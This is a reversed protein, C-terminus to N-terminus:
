LPIVTVLEVRRTGSRREEPLPPPDRCFMHWSGVATSALDAHPNLRCGGSVMHPGIVLKDVNFM